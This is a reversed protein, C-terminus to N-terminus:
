NPYDLGNNTMIWCQGPIESFRIGDAAQIYNLTHYLQDDICIKQGEPLYLVMKLEPFSWKGNQEQYFFPDIYLISDQLNWEYIITNSNDKALQNTAGRAIKEFEVYINDGTSKKIRLNPEFYFRDKYEPLTYV